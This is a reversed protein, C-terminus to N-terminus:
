PNKKFIYKVLTYNISLTTNIEARCCLSETICVYMYIYIYIYIYVCMYINKRMDKEVISFSILHLEMHQVTSDHQKDMRCTITQM